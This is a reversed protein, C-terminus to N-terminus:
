LIKYIGSNDVFKVVGANRLQQLVYALTNPVTNNKPYLKEFIPSAVHSFEKMTFATKNQNKLIDVVMTSIESQTYTATRM